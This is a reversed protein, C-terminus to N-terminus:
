ESADNKEEEVIKRNIQEMLYGLMLWFFATNFCNILFIEYNLFAELAMIGIITLSLKNLESNQPDDYQFDRVYKLVKRVCNAIFLCIVITGIIGTGTIVAIYGSGFDYGKAPYTGKYYEKAYPILNRPSTGLIPKSKVIELCDGWLEFRLNSIGKGELDTRDLTIEEIYGDQNKMRINKMISNPLTELLFRMMFLGAMIGIISIVLCFLLKIANQISKENFYIRLTLWLYIVFGVLTLVLGTRSSSLLIYILQLIMNVIWITKKRKTNEIKFQYISAFLLLVSTTAAFNPDVFIGFLRNYFFGQAKPISHEGM